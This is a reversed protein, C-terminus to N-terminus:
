VDMRKTATTPVGIDIVKAQPFGKKKDHLSLIIDPEVGKGTGTDPDKGSPIDISIIVATSANIHRITEWYIMSLEGHVGTGFIADIIINPNEKPLSKTNSIHTCKDKVKEYNSLTPESKPTGLTFIKVQANKLYRACVFGDGGNGGTGCYIHVLPDKKKTHTLAEKAVERGANEMLKSIPTGFYESNLDIAKQERSTIM